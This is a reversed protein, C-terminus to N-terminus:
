HLVAETLTLRFVHAGYCRTEFATQAAIFALPCDTFVSLPDSKLCKSGLFPTLLKALM